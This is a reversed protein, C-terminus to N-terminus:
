HFYEQLLGTEAKLSFVEARISTSDLSGSIGLVDTAAEVNVGYSAKIDHAGPDASFTLALVGTDYNITGSVGSGLLAGKGDDIARFQTDAVTLEVTFPRVPVKVLNISYDKDGAVTAGIAEGTVEYAGYSESYSGGATASTITDGANRGYGTSTAKIAKFDKINLIFRLIM